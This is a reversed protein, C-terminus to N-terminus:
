GEKAATIDAIAEPRRGSVRELDDSFGAAVHRVAPDADQDIFVPAPQGNRILAFDAAGGRGCISVPEGCARPEAARLQGSEFVLAAALLTLVCSFSQNIRRKQLSM